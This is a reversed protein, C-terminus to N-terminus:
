AVRLLISKGLLLAINDDRYLTKDHLIGRHAVLAVSGDTRFVPDARLAVRRAAPLYVSHMRVDIM